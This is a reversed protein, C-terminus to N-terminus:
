RKWEDPMFKWCDIAAKCSPCCLTKKLGTFELAYKDPWETYKVKTLKCPLPHGHPDIYACKNFGHKEGPLLDKNYGILKYELNNNKCYKEKEFNDIKDIILIKDFYKPPNNLQHFAAVRIINPYSNIPLSGNTKIIVHYNNSSLWCILENIGNYLGPEGGTLEIIWENPVIYKELWPILRNNTLVFEKEDTNRYYAMPCHWCAFNCNSTLSIQLFNKNVMM